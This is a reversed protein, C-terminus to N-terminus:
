GQLHPQLDATHVVLKRNGLERSFDRRLPARGAVQIEDASKSGATQDRDVACGRNQLSQDLSAGVNSAVALGVRVIQEARQRRNRACPDFCRVDRARRPRPTM